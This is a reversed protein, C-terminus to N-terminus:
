GTKQGPCRKGRSKTRQKWDRAVAARMREGMELLNQQHSLAFEFRSNGLSGAFVQMFDAASSKRDHGLEFNIEVGFRRGRLEDVPIGQLALAPM